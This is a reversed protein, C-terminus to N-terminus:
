ARSPHWEYTQYGDVDNGTATFGDQKKLKAYVFEAVQLGDESAHKQMHGAVDISHDAIKELQSDEFISVSGVNLGGRVKLPTRMQNHSANFDALAALIQQGATVGLDLDLFCAMVGDPTWTQKWVGCRDFTRRVLEEYAQFTAAIASEREGLKMQTSGVVDLSLFTCEKQSAGKLASEIERFRKLLIAREQESEASLGATAMAAKDGTRPKKAAPKIARHAAFEIRQLVSDGIGKAIMTAIALIGPAWNPNSSAPPWHWAFWASVMRISPYLYHDIRAMLASGALGPAHVFQFALIAVFGFAVCIAALDFVFRIAKLGNFIISRM